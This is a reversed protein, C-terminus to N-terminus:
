ELGSVQFLEIRAYNAQESDSGVIAEYDGPELLKVIAAEISGFELVDTELSLASVEVLSAADSEGWNQNESILARTGDGNLQYLSLAFDADSERMKPLRARILYLTPSDGLSEFRLRAGEAGSDIPAESAFRRLRRGTVETLLAEPSDGVGAYIGEERESWLSPLENQTESPELMPKMELKSPNDVGSGLDFLSAGMGRKSSTELSLNGIRDEPSGGNLRRDMELFAALGVRAGLTRGIFDDARVHIGGYLRSVGAQDAADYYTAWQLILDESPGAEFELYGNQPFHFEGLGGPFFPSGTLLTLTEAGARSFCSHGSVYAAFAPTVFTSRQYPLWDVARIWDVGGVDNHYDEPQGAWAFIAIEGVHGVLHEHRQGPASSAETIVEVLGEELPLGQPHYSPGLPDSSQGSGGLHRIISIPRVYDYQRKLTWAAVAADHMAGNLALYSIVDWKLQSLEPGLGAYRREFLPHEGVENLLANWHGPPTESSPGDAWFEALVRGYDGHKVINPAYAEGTFPNIARGEGYNTALPNNLHAGPSIDITEGNNPDLLSSFRIVEVAADLFAQQSETGLLPAPGPDFAITNPTPKELAFTEVDRWNSGIFEQISEGVPIGNQTIRFEFALPQWRNPDDLVTGSLALVLPENAAEYGSPDVYGNAENAGDNLNAELISYGIRNGVAAPGSGEIGDFDPDYGMREMLWRLGYLTRIRGDSDKYREELVRYAAHSIAEAQAVLRDGGWDIESLSEEVFIPSVKEWAEPEYAWFADWMAASVHYLNRGHITPAPFDKRIAELLFENWWRAVSHAEVDFEIEILAPDSLVSGAANIARVRYSGVDIPHMREIHLTSKSAGEIAVGDKEWVIVPEPNGSAEVTLILDGGWEVSGGVPQIEVQPFVISESGSEVVEVRQNAPLGVLIQTAGSPWTLTTKFVTEQGGLEGLGIHLVSESQALFYNTPNYEFYQLKGGEIAEVLVKVGIGDRNSEVGQFVLQLWSAASESDNRYLLPWDDRHGIVTDLDGDRDFDFTLLGYGKGEDVIGYKDWELSFEGTGNNEWFRTREPVRTDEFIVANTAILDLDADNDADLFATGWGFGGDRVDLQWSLEDFRGQDSRYRYIRNGTLGQPQPLGPNDFISTVYFDLYLDGDYDGVTMGMGNEDKNAGVEDTANTFSGDGDNWYFRSTNFDGTISLDPWGDKDFDAFSASYLQQTGDESILLGAEATANEFYGPAEEGRNRLLVSHTNPDVEDAPAYYECVYIDLWGDANYDTVTVSYGRHDLDDVPIFAGREAASEIFNGEGDNIYLYYQPSRIVTLLLDVDGDNDIDAFAAGNSDNPGELGFESARETFTGDRNNVYLHNGGSQRTAYLDVWGDADIDVAFVGGASLEPDGYDGEGDLRLGAEISVELFQANALQGSWVIALLM